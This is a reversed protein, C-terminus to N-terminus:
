ETVIEATRVTKYWGGDNKRIYNFIAQARPVSQLFMIFPFFFFLKISLLFTNPLSQNTHIFPKIQRYAFGYTDWIFLTGLILIISIYRFFSSLDGFAGAFLLILAVIPVGLDILFRFQAFIVDTCIRIKEGLELRSRVVTGILDYHGRAWRERQKRYVSFNPPTQELEPVSLWGAIVRKELYARLALEADEVLAHQDWGGIEAILDKKIFYNTGALFQMHKRKHLRSTLLTMHHIALEIGAMVGIINVQAMNSLQFVPGQYIDYGHTIHRSALEKLVDHHLRGDADLIGVFDVKDFTRKAQMVQLAYNLARGKTSKEHTKETSGFVGSYWEPVEILHIFERGFDKHLQTAVRRAITITWQEQPLDDHEREDTILVVSYHEKPYDLKSLRRLTNEIVLGENRAPVFIAVHPMKKKHRAFIDQVNIGSVNANFCNLKKVYHRILINNRAYVYLGILFFCFIFYIVINFFWYKDSGQLVAVAMEYASTEQSVDQVLYDTLTYADTFTYGRETIYSLLDRLESTDRWPHWFFSMTASDFVSLHDANEKIKQVDSDYFVFGLNEPIYITGNIKAPFPLAGVDPIHEYRYTYMDDFIANSQDSAIYHPTEWIEPVPLDAIRMGDQANQVISRSLEPSDDDRPGGKEIDWFEFGLGSIENKYQHTYGHQVLIANGSTVEDRVVRAFRSYPKITLEEQTTPNIYRPFIALHSPIQLDRLVTFAAVLPKPDRYTHPNIDELRILAEKGTRTEGLPAHLLDLIPISYSTTSYYAPIDFPIFLHQNDVKYFDIGLRQNEHGVISGVIDFQHNDSNIITPAIFFKKFVSFYQGEYLVHDTKDSTVHEQSRNLKIDPFLLEAGRLADQGFWVTPRQTNKRLEDIIPQAIFVGLANAVFVVDAQQLEDATVVDFTRYTTETYWHSDIIQSFNDIVKQSTIGDDYSVDDYIILVNKVENTDSATQAFLEHVPIVALFSVVFLVPYVFNACRRSITSNM